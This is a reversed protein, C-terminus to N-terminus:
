SCLYKIQEYSPIMNALYTKKEPQMEFEMRRKGEKFQAYDIFHRLKHLLGLPPFGAHLKQTKGYNRIENICLYRANLM